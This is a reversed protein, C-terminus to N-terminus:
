LIYTLRSADGGGEAIQLVVAPGEVVLGHGLVEFVQGEHGAAVGFQGLQGLVGAGPLPVSVEVVNSEVSGQRGVQGADPLGHLRVAVALEGIFNSGTSGSVLGSQFRVRSASSVSWGVSGM